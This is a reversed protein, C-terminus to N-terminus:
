AYRVEYSGSSSIYRVWKTVETDEYGLKREMIKLYKVELGSASFPVEFKVSVPSKTWKKKDSVNLLELEATFQATRGGAFRKMKWVVANEGPKYKAKGRDAHVNVKSTTTPVPIRVEVKQGFLSPDFDAKINVTIDIRNGQEQVLPTVRFPLKIDQTTRYKMLEFEGDPPIFSISRDMDFKGLRVCQHFTLDDIAIPAKRNRKKKQAAGAGAAARQAGDKNVIKDNIGLKCEPMGSLYCKMRISGAVHASLPQGQPSMLLSVSELVDLYLEHRRYKIGDRRWGIQGTVQSTIKTQEERSANANLGQQTIFLKLSDPDTSQPYGYDLIEDLLEYILSFNNRVNVDSFQAFYAEMLQVVKNLFEFVLAANANLRTVAVLWMNGRKLHFYSARGINIVPSRVSHRAHIVNARFADVVSRTIDDRYTRSILCDGKHNYLFVGSIM